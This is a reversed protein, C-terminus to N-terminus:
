VRDQAAVAGNCSVDLYSCWNCQWPLAPKGKKMTPELVPPPEPLGGIRTAADIAVEVAADDREVDFERAFNQGERDVYLLKGYDAGLAWCYAQVQLVNAPKPKDLFKFANGRVTKFDVVVEEGEPGTLVCDCTGSMGAPLLSSLDCESGRVEWGGELGVRLWEICAAHLRHGAEFMLLQGPHEPIREAGHRRLWLQRPCKGDNGEIAVALDSVHISDTDWTDPEACLAREIAAKLDPNCSM